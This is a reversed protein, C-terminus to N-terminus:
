AANRQLATYMQEARIWDGEHNLDCDRSVPVPIMISNTWFLPAGDMYANARGWYFQGADHLFPEGGVTFAYHANPNESLERFGWCLSEVSMLPATAHICCAFAFPEIQGLVWRTVDLPGVTDDSLEPPRMVVSAHHASAVSAVTYDDTAVIVRDFLHTALATEISYAIVPRGHFQRINKRPIRVSGGRAPIIAVASM